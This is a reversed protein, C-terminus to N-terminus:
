RTCIEVWAGTFPAVPQPSITLGASGIEVWAGTFPAVNLYIM